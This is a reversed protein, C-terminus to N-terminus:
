KALYPVVDGVVFPGKGVVGNWAKRPKFEEGAEFGMTMDNVSRALVSSVFGAGRGSEAELGGKVDELLADKVDCSVAHGCNVVYVEGAGTGGGSAEGGDSELM